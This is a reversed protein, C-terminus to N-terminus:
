LVEWTSRPREFLFHRSQFNRKHYNYPCHIWRVRTNCYFEAHVTSQLILLICEVSVVWVGYLFFSPSLGDSACVGSVAVCVTVSVTRWKKRVRVGYLSFSPSRGDSACEDSVGVCGYFYVSYLLMCVSPCLGDNRVCVYVRLFVRAYCCVCQRVVDTM